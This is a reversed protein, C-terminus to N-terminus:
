FRRVKLIVYGKPSKQLLFFCNEFQILQEYVTEFINGDEDVLSHGDTCSARVTVLPLSYVSVGTPTQHNSRHLLMSIVM